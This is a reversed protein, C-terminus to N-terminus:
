VKKVVHNIKGKLIGDPAWKEEHAGSALCCIYIYIYIHRADPAWSLFHAGTSISCQKM